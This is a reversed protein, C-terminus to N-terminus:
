GTSLADRARQLIESESVLGIPKEDDDIVPVAGVNREIMLDVAKVAPDERRVTYVRRTMHEKVSGRSGKAMARVLDGRSLIGALRGHDDVLVVHRVDAMAMSAEIRGMQASDELIVPKNKMLDAVTLAM